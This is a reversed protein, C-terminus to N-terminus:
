NMGLANRVQQETVYPLGLVEARSASQLALNKLADCETQTLVSGVLSDLLQQTGPYGVDIGDTTVFRMAWKVASNTQAATELKDLIEAGGTVEALVTRATVFRTKHKQYVPDNLLNVLIGPCDPIYQAYGRNLPDTTLETQLTSM